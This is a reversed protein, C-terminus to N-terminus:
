FLKEFASFITTNIKNIKGKNNFQKSFETEIDIVNIDNKILKEFWKDSYLQKLVEIIKCSIYEHRFPDAFSKFQNLKWQFFDNFKGLDHLASACICLQKLENQYKFGNEIKQYFHNNNKQKGVCFLEKDKEQCIVCVSKSVYKSIQNKIEQIGQLTIKAYWYENDCEKNVAYKNLIQIINKRNRKSTKGHISFVVNKM